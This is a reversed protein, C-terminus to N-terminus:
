RLPLRAWNRPKWPRWGESFDTCFVGMSLTEQAPPIWWVSIRLARFGEPCATKLWWAAAKVKRSLSSRPAGKELGVTSRARTQPTSSNDPRMPAAPSFFTPRHCSKKWPKGRRTAAGCNPASTRTTPLGCARKARLRFPAGYPAEAPVPFRRASERPTCSARAASTARM